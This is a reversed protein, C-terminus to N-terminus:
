CSQRSCVILTASFSTFFSTENARKTKTFIQSYSSLDQAHMKSGLPRNTYLWVPYKLCFHIFLTHLSGQQVESLLWTGWLIFAKWLMLPIGFLQCLALEESAMCILAQESSKVQKVCPYSYVVSPTSTKPSRSMRDVGLKKETSLSEQYM